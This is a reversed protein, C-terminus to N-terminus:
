LIGRFQFGPVGPIDDTWVLAPARRVAFMEQVKRETRWHDRSEVARWHFSTRTIRSFIWRTSVGPAFSGELVIENGVPRGIFSKVVGAVPGHWTSRWADIQPDYFRLTAGYEGPAPRHSRRLARKPAIWVDQIARGELVWSFHWEGDLRREPGGPPLNHVDVDWSGVFQGFLRLRDAAPGDPPDGGLATFMGDGAAAGSRVRRDLNGRGMALAFLDFDRSM